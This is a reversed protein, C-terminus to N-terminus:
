RLASGARQRLMMNFALKIAHVYPDKYPFEANHDHVQMSANVEFVVLNGSNDFACDVGFYDLGIRERIMRLADYNEATFVAGPDALFAAEERQMWPLRAMDTSVHHVKWDNGIALHYPLIDDGVFVLRYKRFHGDASAYDIYEIVYRDRDARSGLFGALASLDAIKEFDEGGHTGAPRALVPFSFPLLKELAVVSVDAGADLRLIAPTRCGSIGPLLKAIADRTTHQIKDPDNIVPRGLKGVLSAAAPLITRALDAESILNVVLDVDGLSAADLETGDFLALINTDYAVEKFLYEVPTNGAFPAFLALVRFDAPSKRTTCAIPPKIEAAQVYAGRAADINGKRQWIGGIWYLSEACRPDRAFAAEFHRLAEELDDLRYCTKGLQHRLQGDLPREEALDILLAKAMIYQEAAMLAQALGTRSPWHAPDLKLAELYSLIADKAKGAQLQADGLNSWCGVLAPKLRLASKFQAAASGFRWVDMYASGLRAHLVAILNDAIQDLGGAAAAELGSQYVAIARDVHGEDYHQQAVRLQQVVQFKTNEAPSIAAALLDISM